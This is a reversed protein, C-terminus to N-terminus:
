SVIYVTQYFSFATTSNSLIEGITTVVTYPPPTATPGSMPVLPEALDHLLPLVRVHNVFFSFAPVTRGGMWLLEAYNFPTLQTKAGALTFTSAYTESCLTFCFYYFAWIFDVDNTGSDLSTCFEKKFIPRRIIKQDSGTGTKISEKLRWDVFIQHLSRPPNGTATQYLITLRFDARIFFFTFFRM